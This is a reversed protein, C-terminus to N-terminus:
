EPPFVKVCNRGAGKAAYLAEDAMNTVTKPLTDPEAILSVVGISASVNLPLGNYRIVIETIKQRLCEAKEGASHRDLGPLIIAFEEGGYRAVCDFDRSFFEKMMASVKVLCQDGTLHGYQDNFSKFHDIDLLILALQQQQRHSRYIEKQLVQDFYRRNYLNTLADTISLTQLDRNARKLEQTTIQLEHTREAVRRELNLSHEKQVQLLEYQAKERLNRESNIREALAFSLLVIEIVFGITQTYETINNFPLVGRLMLVYIFTGIVIMSWAVAFITASRSGKWALYVATILSCMTSFMSMAETHLLEISFGTSYIVLSVLWYVLLLTNMHLPWGGEKKLDLFYRMFLTATVFGLMAGIGYAHLRFWSFDGWLLHDGLGTKALIFLIISALYMSYMFYMRDRTFMWLSLNYLFMVALIGFLFAYISHFHLQYDTYAEENWLFLPLLYNYTTRTKLLLTVSENGELIVPFLTSANHRYRTEPDRTLGARFELLEGSVGDKQYFSVERYNSWRLELLRYAAVDSDNHLNVAVWAPHQSRPPDLLISTAQQWPLEDYLNLVDGASLDQDDFFYYIESYDIQQDESTSIDLASVSLSFVIGWLAVFLSVLLRHSAM